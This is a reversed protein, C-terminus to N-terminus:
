FPPGGTGTAGNRNIAAVAVVLAVVSVICVAVLAATGWQANTGIRVATDRVEAAAQTATRRFKM